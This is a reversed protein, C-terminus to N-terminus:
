HVSRRMRSDCHQTVKPNSQFLNQMVTQNVAALRGGSLQQVLDKQMEESVSRQVHPPMAQVFADLQEATAGDRIQRLTDM